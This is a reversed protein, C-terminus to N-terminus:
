EKELSELVKQNIVIKHKERLEKLWQDQLFNQYDATILGRAESLKKNEPQIIENIKVVYITNNDVSFKHLGVKPNVSDIIKNDGAEFKGRDYGINLKSNKNIVLIISDVPINKDLMNMVVNALSDNKVRFIEADTRKKWRYDNKHQQYFEELGLTDKIAKSWVMEDSINFLLIGDHYENVLMRFDFEEKELNNDKVALVVSAVWQNYLKHVIYKITGKNVMRQSTEVFKAFDQQTYKKKDLVFMPKNLGNAKDAKWSREFILSDVVTYFQQLAKPYEKFKYQKKFKEVAVDRSMNSRTDKAVKNKLEPLYEKYPPVKKLDLLKIIHFGYDTKIPASIGGIQKIESIGKIFEPVMKSVEFWNLEGGKEASGKDDSYKIAAQDFTIKGSNIEKEIEQIKQLAEKEGDKSITNNNVLIHAVHITGLAPIKDTVRILHYGYKTRIPMSIDGVATEYVASEFPYVMYFATFYGLDGGNGKRAPFNRNAPQDRASPDDSYERALKAFDEGKLARKRIELLANYAVKALSDDDDMNEPILKMIHSARVDYQLRDYAEKLLKENVDKDTLYPLALQARYGGLENKFSPITDMGKSEAEIVKLKFNIFLDLYDQLTTNDETNTRGNNKTFVYMFESVSINKNDITLLTRNDEKKQGFLSQSLILVFFLVLKSIKLM